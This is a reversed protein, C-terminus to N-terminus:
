FLFFLVNMLVFSIFDWSIFFSKSQCQLDHGGNIAKVVSNYTLGPDYDPVKHVGHQAAPAHPDPILTGLYWSPQNAVPPPYYGAQYPPAFGDAGQPIPIGYNGSPPVGPYQGTFSLYPGTPLQGPPPGPPPGYQGTPPQGLPPLYQGNPLQGTPQFYQGPTSAGPPYQGTPPTGTPLPYEYQGPFQAPSPPFQSNTPPYQGPVGPYGQLGYAYPPYGQPPAYPSYQPYPQQGPPPHPHSLSHHLHPAGGQPAPSHRTESAISPTPASIQFSDL